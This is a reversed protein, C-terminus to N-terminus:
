DSTAYRVGYEKLMRNPNIINRADKFEALVDVFRRDEHRAVAAAAVSPSRSRGAHCHILINYGSELEERVFDAAKEFLLYSDDGGYDGAEGDSMSFYGYRTGISVNDRIATQCTSVVTDYDDKPTCQAAEISAITIQPHVQTVDAM